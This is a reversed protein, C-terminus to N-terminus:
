PAHLKLSPRSPRLKRELIGLFAILIDRIQFLTSRFLVALTTGYLTIGIIINAGLRLTGNLHGLFNAILFLGFIMSATAFFGPAVDEIWAWPPRGMLHMALTASLPVSVALPAAFVVGIMSPSFNSAAVAFFGISLVVEILTLYTSWRRKGHTMLIVNFCPQLGLGLGGLVLGAFIPSAATWRPGFLSGILDDSVFSAGAFIPACVVAAAGITRSVVRHHRKPDAMAEAFLPMVVGTIPTVAIMQVAMRLRKALGYLGAAGAGFWIGVLITDCTQSAMYALGGPATDRLHYLIELAEKWGFWMAPRWPCTIWLLALAVLSGVVQQLVIADVGWGSHAALIGAAGGVLAGVLGRLALTRFMMRRTLWQEHTRGVGCTVVVLGMGRLVHALGPMGIMRELPAAAALLTLMLLCGAIASLWFAATWEEASAAPRVATAEPIRDQVTLRLAQTAVFGISALGFDSPSLLHALYGFILLSLGQLGCMEVMLWAAGSVSRGLLSAESAVGVITEEMLETSNTM